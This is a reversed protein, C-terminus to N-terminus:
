GLSLFPSLIQTSLPFRPLLSPAFCRSEVKASSGPCDAYIFIDSPSHFVDCNVTDSMTLHRPGPLAEALKDHRRKPLPTRAKAKARTVPSHSRTVVSGGPSQKGKHILPSDKGKPAAKRPSYKTLSARAGSRTRTRKTAPTKAVM